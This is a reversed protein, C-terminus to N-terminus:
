GGTLAGLSNLDLPRADKPAQIDVAEDFGSLDATLDLDVSRVPLGTLGGAKLVLHVRRPRLDETGIWAEVTGTQLAKQAQAPTLSGTGGLLPGLDAFAKAADIDGSM